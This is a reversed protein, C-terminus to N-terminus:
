KAEAYHQSLVKYSRSRFAFLTVILGIIGALTFMLAMGRADGTGFWGGILDVGGGTTMYPIFVLQAIPGVLFATIPSAASEVSQAFGFVRGQRKLPVVRQIVTQEAAEVTPILCMYIFMGIATLVISAQITFFMCIVWMMINGVFLLKLPKSGLGRRAVILGGVIFGLSLLGWLIGWAEVSVLSLGYPDMLSMFVGGLFNNFTAFFILALLGPVVAIAALTGKIDLKKPKKDDEDIHEPLKEPISVTLLHLVSLATLAVSLGLAWDMGLRGIVLGSFVSTVAFAIGNTTGVLGNARDHKEKPVLLTVTTSLAIARLNGVIAGLLILIVFLWFIPNGVSLLTEQPVVFFLIAALIFTILSVIGAYLMATKKKHHDVFTGFFLGLGASLLMYLGGLISTAIVSRTELYIWFTVAFWLFSTTVGAVLANALVKYFNKM